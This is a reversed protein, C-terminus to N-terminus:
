APAELEDLLARAQEIGPRHGKATFLELATRAKAVADDRRELAQLVRALDLTAEARVEVSDTRFAHAVASRAWRVAGEDNRESLALRARVRHTIAFNLMDEPASLREALEIASRAAGPNNLLSQTHAVLAQTTSRLAHQGLKALVADSELLWPLAAAPDAASLEAVGLESECTAQLERMGLARFSESARQMMM